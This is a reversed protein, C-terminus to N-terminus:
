KTGKLSEAEIRIWCHDPYDDTKDLGHHQVVYDIPAWIKLPMNCRCIDCTGLEAENPVEMKLHRKMEIQYRIAEAIKDKLYQPFNWWRTKINKPCNVCVLARREALEREVPTAGDGLWDKLVKIGEVDRAIEKLLSM